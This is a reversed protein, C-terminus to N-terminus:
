KRSSTSISCCSCSCRSCDALQVESEVRFAEQRLGDLYREVRQFDGLYQCVELAQVALPLADPCNAEFREFNAIWLDFKGAALLAEGLNKYASVHVPDAKLVTEYARIAADLAGQQQFLVGLNYDADVLSPKFALARQYARAADTFSRQMQLAVGHNYHTEGDDPALAIAREFAASAEAGNRLALQALGLARWLGVSGPTRALGEECLAVAAIPDSAATAAAAAAIRADVYGPAAALAAALDARAAALDGADRALVGRLHHGPAFGPQMDLLRSYAANAVAADGRQHARVADNWLADLAAADLACDRSADRGEHQAVLAAVLADGDAFARDVLLPANPDATTALALIARAPRQALLPAAVAGALNVLVDFDRAALAKAVSADFSAPLEAVAPTTGRAVDIAEASARGITAVAIDFADRHLAAIKALTRRTAADM